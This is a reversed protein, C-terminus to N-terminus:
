QAPLELELVLGPVQEQVQLSLELELHEQLDL